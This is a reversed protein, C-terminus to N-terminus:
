LTIFVCPFLSWPSWPRPPFYQDAVFMLISEHFIINQEGLGCAFYSINHRVLVRVLPLDNGHERYLKWSRFLMFSLIEILYKVRYCLLVTFGV